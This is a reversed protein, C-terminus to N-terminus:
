LLSERPLLALSSFLCALHSKREAKICWCWHRPDGAVVPLTNAQPNGNRTLHSFQGVYLREDVLSFTLLNPPTLIFSQLPYPLLPRAFYFNLSSVKLSCFLFYSSISFLHYLSFSTFSFSFLRTFPLWFTTNPTPSYTVYCYTFLSVKTSCYHFTLVFMFNFPFPTQHNSPVFAHRWANTTLLSTELMM